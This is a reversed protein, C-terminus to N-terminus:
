NAGGDAHMSDWITNFDARAQARQADHYGLLYSGVSISATLLFWAAMVCFSRFAERIIM